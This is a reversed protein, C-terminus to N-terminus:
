VSVGHAYSFSPVGDVMRNKSGGPRTAELSFISSHYGRRKWGNQIDHLQRTFQNRAATGKFHDGFRGQLDPKELKERLPNM